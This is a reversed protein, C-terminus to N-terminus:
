NKIWKKSYINGYEDEIKLIYIGSNYKSVDINESNITTIKKGLLNYIEGSKIGSTSKINLIDNVPNPYITIEWKDEINTNNYDDVNLVASLDIMLLEKGKEDIEGTLYFKDNLVASFVSLEGEFNKYPVNKNIKFSFEETASSNSFVYIKFTEQYTSGNYEQTNIILKDDLPIFDFYDIFRSSADLNDKSIIKEPATNNSLRWLEATGIENLIAFYLYDKFAYFNFPNSGKTGPIIDAVINTSDDKNLEWIEAGETETNKVYYMKDKLPFLTTPELGDIKSFTTFDETKYVTDENDVKDIGHFYFLNNFSSYTNFAIKNDKLVNMVETVARTGANTGDTKWLEFRSLNNNSGLSSVYFYLENNHELFTPRQDLAPRYSGSFGNNIDKIMFTGAETGNTKWLEMGKVGDDAYFYLENNLKKFQNIRVHARNDNLFGDGNPKIDKLITTGTETGDTIWLELGKEKTFAKFILKDNLVYFDYPNSSDFGPYIDKVLTTNTGDFVFLERGHINDDAAFYIKGNLETQFKPNSDLNGSKNIDKLLKTGADTGDSVWLEGENYSGSSSGTSFILNENLTHMTYTPTRGDSWFPTVSKTGAATGNTSWLRYGEDKYNATFYTKTPTSAFYAQIYTIDPTSIKTTNTSTGDFIHIGRELFLLLDNGRHVITKIVGDGNQNTFILKTGAETGDTEWFEAGVSFYAKNNFVTLYFANSNKITITGEETGDTFWLKNGFNFLNGIPLNKHITPSSSAQLPNIDKLLITGAETGDSIYPENGLDKTKLYIIFRTDDFKSINEKSNKAITLQQDLPFSKILTTTNGDTKHLGKFTDNNNDLYFAIFYFYNEYTGVADVSGGNNFIITTNTETGDSKYINNYDAYYLHNDTTYYYKDPLNEIQFTGSETGNTTWLKRTYNQDIEASFFLKNKFEFFEDLSSGSNGQNIDSAVQIEQAFIITSFLISTFLIIKKM